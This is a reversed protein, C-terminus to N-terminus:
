GSTLYNESLVSFFFIYNSTQLFFSPANPTRAKETCKASKACKAVWAESRSGERGSALSCPSEGPGRCGWGAAHLGHTAAWSPAQWLRLCQVATCAQAQKSAVLVQHNESTLLPWLDKGKIVGLKQKLYLPETFLNEEKQGAKSKSWGSQGSHKECFEWSDRHVFVPKDPTQEPLAKHPALEAGETGGPARGRSASLQTM